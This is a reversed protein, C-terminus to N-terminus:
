RGSVVRKLWVFAVIAIVVGMIAAGITGVDSVAGTIGATVSAPVEALVNTSLATGGIILGGKGLYEGEIVKEATRKIITTTENTKDRAKNIFSEYLAKYKQAISSGITMVVDKAKQFM